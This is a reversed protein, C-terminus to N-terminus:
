CKSCKKQRSPFTSFGRTRPSSVPLPYPEGELAVTKGHHTFFFGKGAILVGGTTTADGDRLAYRIDAM